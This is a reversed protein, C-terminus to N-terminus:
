ASGTKYGIKVRSKKRPNLLQNLAKFIRQLDGDHENVLNEIQEVKLLIDKHTSIMERMKVFIRIIRINVEIARPSNLICSLMTVGQETFCFPKHRLANSTVIQSRWNEFEKQDMEFMFDAPFREMNRRVAQKLKKTEVGYLVALDSDVMVKQERIYHIQNLLAEDTYNTITKM